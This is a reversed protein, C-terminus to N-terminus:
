TFTSDLFSILSNSSIVILLVASLIRPGQSSGGDGERRPCRASGPVGGVQRGWRALAGGPDWASWEECRPAASPPHLPLRTGVRSICRTNQKRGM